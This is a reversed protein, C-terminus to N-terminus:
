EEPMGEQRRPMMANLLRQGLPVVPEAAAEALEPLAAAVATPTAASSSNSSLAKSLSVINQPAVLGTNPERALGRTSPNKDTKIEWPMGKFSNRIGKELEWWPSPSRGAHLRPQTSARCNLKARREAMPWGTHLGTSCPFVAIFFHLAARM